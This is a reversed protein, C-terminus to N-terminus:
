TKGQGAYGETLHKLCISSSFMKQIKGCSLKISQCECLVCLLFIFAKAKYSFILIFSNQLGYRVKLGGRYEFLMTVIMCDRESESEM